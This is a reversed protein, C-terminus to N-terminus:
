SRPKKNPKQRYLSTTDVFSEDTPEQETPPKTVPPETVSPEPESSAPESPTPETAVPESPEPIVYDQPPINLIQGGKIMNPDAINNYAALKATTTGFKNAIASLTDGSQVTYTGDFSPEDVTPESPDAPASDAVPDDTVPIINPDDAASEHNVDATAPTDKHINAENVASPISGWVGTFTYSGNATPTFQVTISEGPKFTQTYTKTGYATNQILCYGGCEKVSGGAKLTITYTANAELSYGGDTNPEIKTEDKMVTEVTVEYYAATMKQTPTEVSATYWAWTMGCVCVLCICIGLISPMLLPAISDKREDHKRDARHYIRNYLRMVNKGTVFPILCLYHCRLEGRWRRYEEYNDARDMEHCIYRTDEAFRRWFSALKAIVLVLVSIVIVLFFYIYGDNM